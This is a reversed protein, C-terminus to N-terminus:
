TAFFAEPNKPEAVFPSEKRGGANRFESSAASETANRRSMACPANVSTGEGLLCTCRASRLAVSLFSPSLIEATPQFFLTSRKKNEVGLPSRVLLLLAACSPMARVLIGLVSDAFRNAAVLIVQTSCRVREESGESFDTQLLYTRARVHAHPFFLFGRQCLNRYNFQPKNQWPM